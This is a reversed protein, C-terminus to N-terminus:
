RSVLFFLLIQNTTSDKSIILNARQRQKRARADIKFLACHVQRLSSFKCYDKLRPLNSFLRQNSQLIQFLSSFKVSFHVIIFSFHNFDSLETWFISM